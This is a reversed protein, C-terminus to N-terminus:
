GARRPTSASRRSWWCARRRPGNAVWSGRWSWDDVIGRVVDCEVTAGTASRLCTALVELGEVRQERMRRTADPLSDGRSCTSSPRAEITRGLGAGTAARGRRSPASFDTGCIISMAKGIITARDCWWMRIWGWDATSRASAFVAGPRAHAEPTAGLGLGTPPGRSAPRGAQGEGEVRLGADGPPMTRRSRAWTELRSTRRRRSVPRPPTLYEPAHKSTRSCRRCPRGQLRWLRLSHLRGFLTLGRQEHKGMRMWPWCESLRASVLAMRPDAPRPGRGRRSAYLMFHESPTIKPGTSYSPWGAPTVLNTYRARLGVRADPRRRLGLVAPPVADQRGQGPFM